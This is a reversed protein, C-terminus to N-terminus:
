SEDILDACRTLAREVDFTEVSRRLSLERQDTVNRGLVFYSKRAESYSMINDFRAHLAHEVTDLRRLGHREFLREWWTWDAWVLHGMLPFGRDDCPLHRWLRGRQDDGKWEDLWYTHIQGFVRDDGFAPTNFVAVGGPELVGALKGMFADLKNPSIHEVLDFACVAKVPGVATDLLEGIRIKRRVSKPARDRAFASVDLGSVAINLRKACVLAGGDGCGIELMETVGLSAMFAALVTKDFDVGYGWPGPREYFGHTRICHELWDFDARSEAHYVLFDGSRSYREPREATLDPLPAPELRRRDNRKPLISQLAAFLSM